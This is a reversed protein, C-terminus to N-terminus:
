GTKAGVGLGDGVPLITASLRPHHLFHTNFARIARTSEADSEGPAQSAAHHWLLNDVAVLGNARLLPLSAELYEAYEEKLADIFVFDFSAPPLRKLVELAPENVVEIRQAVGARQWARQATATRNRDPDITVIRGNTPQGIALWLTSYGYATGIELINRAQTARALVALLRGSERDVIPIDDAHGQRELAAVVTDVAPHLDELYALDREHTADSGGEMHTAAELLREVLEGAKRAATGIRELAAAPSAGEAPSALHLDAATLITSLAGNLDHAYKAADARM